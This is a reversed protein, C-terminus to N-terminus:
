TTRPESLVLSYHHAKLAKQKEKGVVATLKVPVPMNPCSRSKEPIFFGLSVLIYKLTDQGLMGTGTFRSHVV